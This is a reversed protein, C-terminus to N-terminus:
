IAEQQIPEGAARARELLSAEDRALHRLCFALLLASVANSFLALRMATTLDGLKDSLAGIAYPGLALGIFTLLLIYFASAVARMRPLVLDQVTSAGIGLWSATLASLPFNIAYALTTNQTGLMWLALPIPALALLLALKIRGLASRQRLRDALWGGATIGILGAVAATLGVVTGVEASSAGHIRRFFIPTWGGIGYGAFALFSFGLTAWRLSPTRFILAACTPDRRALSRAWSVTAYAGIGLAIWQLADGTVRVLALVAVAIGAAWALNSILGSAGVGARWLHWLTFPPVVARLERGFQRFPHPEPPTYIGDAAGRRPERLTRVWVALLLGPLGVALYAAQWGTLGFPAGGEAFAHNWRDVIQGGILLGLGAGIYIGSSYLALVTARMRAPFCDTLISFAAPTASAEGVGVGIRAAALEGFSRTLGSLATMASWFALGTAILTRRTWVDALRGLPIGFIAYFVAFATGYLFGIRADSIGLDAKIDEALITIIQRDLFNVVYVLLLVGLVYKSYSGGIPPAAGSEGAGAAGDRASASV